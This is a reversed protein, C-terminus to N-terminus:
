VVSSAVRETNRGIKAKQVSLMPELTLLSLLSKGGRHFREEKKRGELDSRRRRRRGRDKWPSTDASSHRTYIYIADSDIYEERTNKRIKVSHFQLIIRFSSPNLPHANQLKMSPIRSTKSSPFDQEENRHNDLRFDLEFIKCSRIDQLDM